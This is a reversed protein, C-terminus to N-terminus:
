IVDHPIGRMVPLTQIAFVYVPYGVTDSMGTASALGYVLSYM